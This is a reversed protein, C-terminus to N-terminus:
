RPVFNDARMGDMTVGNVIALVEPLVQSECACDEVKPNPQTARPKNPPGPTNKPDATTPTQSRVVAALAIILVLLAYIVRSM